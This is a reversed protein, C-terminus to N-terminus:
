QETTDLGAVFPFAQTVATVVEADTASTSLAFACNYACNFTFANTYADPSSLIAQALGRLKTYRSLNKGADIPTGLVSVAYKSVQAQIQGRFTANQSLTYRETLTLAM